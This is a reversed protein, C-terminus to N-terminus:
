EPARGQQSGRYMHLNLDLDVLLAHLVEQVLLLVIDGGLLHGRLYGELERLHSCLCPPFLCSRM